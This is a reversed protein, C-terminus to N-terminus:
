PLSAAAVSPDNRPEDVVGVVVGDRLWQSLLGAAHAVGKSEGHAAILSACLASFSADVRICDLAQQEIVEITRFCPSFEQRWILMGAPQPLLAAAPPTEGASLASWIAGANSIVRGVRLTPALMLRAADWDIAALEDTSLTSTNPGEFARSLAWELWALESVEVDDPYLEVLTRDFGEGYAGLTWAHPPKQTCHTVAASEFAEDGLWAQTQKFTDRLCDLLQSRYNNQHVALGAVAREDLPRMADGSADVLWTLLDRQLELLSM